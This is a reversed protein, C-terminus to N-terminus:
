CQIAAQLPQLLERTRSFPERTWARGWFLLWILADHRWLARREVAASGGRTAEAARGGMVAYAEGGTHQSSRIDTGFFANGLVSESGKGSWREMLCIATGISM